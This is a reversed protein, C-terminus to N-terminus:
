KGASFTQIRTPVNALDIHVWSVGIEIRNIFMFDIHEKNDLIDKRVEDATKGDVDFDFAQGRRHASLKAGTKSDSSRFGRDKFPGGRHWNNITVPVNYRQRIRDMTSLLYPDFLSWANEGMAEYTAPDVLEQIKFHVCKYFRNTPKM